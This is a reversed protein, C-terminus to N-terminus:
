FQTVDDIFSGGLAFQLSLGNCKNVDLLNKFFEEESKNCTCFNTIRPNQIDELYHNRRGALKSANHESCRNGQFADILKSRSMKIQGEETYVTVQFLYSTHISWLEQNERMMEYWKLFEKLYRIDSLLESPWQKCDFPVFDM